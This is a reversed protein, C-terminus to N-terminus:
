RSMLLRLISNSISHQVRIVVPERGEIATIEAAKTYAEEAIFSSFIVKPEKEESFFVVFKGEFSELDKPANLIIDPNNM